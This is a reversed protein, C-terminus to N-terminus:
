KRKFLFDAQIPGRSPDIHQNFVGRLNFGRQHLFQIVEGVLAQRQYLEVYSAEVYITEFRALLEECGKLVDLEFGQVDIKLLAPAAVLDSSLISTLRRLRVNKTKKVATGFIEVQTTAPALISSSDNEKTVNM